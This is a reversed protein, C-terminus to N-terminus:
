LPSDVSVKHLRFCIGQVRILVDTERGIKLSWAKVRSHLSASSSSFSPSPSSPSSNSSSFECEEEYITEVVAGLQNLGRM